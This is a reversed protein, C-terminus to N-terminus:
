YQPNENLEAAKDEDVIALSYGSQRPDNDIM